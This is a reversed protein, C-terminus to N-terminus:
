RLARSMEMKAREFELAVEHALLEAGHMDEAHGRKELEVCLEALRTAALISAAGRLSHALRAVEEGDRGRSARVVDGVLPARECFLGALSVLVDRGFEDRLAEFVERDVTPARPTREAVAKMTLKMPSSGAGVSRSVAAVQPNM